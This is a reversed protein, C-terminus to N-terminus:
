WLTTSQGPITLQILGEKEEEEEEEELNRRRRRRKYDPYKNVAISILNSYM